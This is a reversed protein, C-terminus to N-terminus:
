LNYNKAALYTDLEELGVIIFQDAEVVTANTSISWGNTTVISISISSEGFSNYFRLNWAWAHDTMAYKLTSEDIDYYEKFINLLEFKKKLALDKDLTYGENNDFIVFMDKPTVPTRGNRFAYEYTKIYKM